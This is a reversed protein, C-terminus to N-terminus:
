ASSDRGSKRLDGPLMDVVRGFRDLAGELPGTFIGTPSMMPVLRELIPLANAMNRDAQEMLPLAKRMLPITELTNRNLEETLPVVTAMNADMREVLDFGRELMSGLTRTFEALAHIDDLLRLLLPLPLFPSFTNV